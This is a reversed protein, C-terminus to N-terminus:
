SRTGKSDTASRSQPSLAASSADGSATTKKSPMQTAPARGASPARRRGPSHQVPGAGVSPPLSIQPHAQEWEQMREFAFPDTVILREWPGLHTSSITLDRSRTFRAIRQDVCVEVDGARQLITTAEPQNSPAWGVAFTWPVGARLSVHDIRLVIRADKGRTRRTAIAAQAREDLIIAV